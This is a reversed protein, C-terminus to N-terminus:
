RLRVLLRGFLQDKGDIRVLGGVALRIARADANLADGFPALFQLHEHLVLV